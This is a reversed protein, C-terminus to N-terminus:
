RMTIKGGSLLHCMVDYIVLRAPNTDSLSIITRADVTRKCKSPVTRGDGMGSRFRIVQVVLRHNILGIIVLLHLDKWVVTGLAEKRM